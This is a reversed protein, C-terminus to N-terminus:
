WRIACKANCDADDLADEVMQKAPLQCSTLMSLFYQGAAHHQSAYQNRLAM